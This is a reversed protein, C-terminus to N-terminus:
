KAAKVAAEIVMKYGGAYITCGAVGETALTAIDDATKGIAAKAYADAQAYWDGAAMFNNPDYNDGQERKTGKFAAEAASATNDSVTINKMEVEATDLISAVVKGDALISAAYDATYKANKVNDNGTTDSISAAVAIGAKLATAATKFTTKHESKFANDVAKLMDAINISCSAKLEADSAYGNTLPTAAAEAQTKGVLYAALADAQKYWDGAAMYNDPDYNDGQAVKSVPATTNLTNDTYKAQFDIADFRCLVIKGDADTVIAAVTESAKTTSVNSSVVVGIALKYEKETAPADTGPADPTADDAPTTKCAVFMTAVLTLIVLLSIIKKM